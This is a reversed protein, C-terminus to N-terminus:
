RGTVYTISVRVSNLFLPVANYVTSIYLLQSHEMVDLSTSPIVHVNWTLSHIIGIRLCETAIYEPATLM